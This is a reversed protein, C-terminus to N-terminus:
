WPIDSYEDRFDKALSALADAFPELECKPWRAALEIVIDRLDSIALATDFAGDTNRYNDCGEEFQRKLRIYDAQDPTFVVSFQDDSKSMPRRYLKLGCKRVYELLTTQEMQLRNALSELSECQDFICDTM